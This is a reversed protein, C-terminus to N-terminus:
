LMHPRWQHPHRRSRAFFFGAQQCSGLPGGLSSASGSSFRRLFLQKRCPSFLKTWHLEPHGSGLRSLGFLPLSLYSFPLLFTPPLYSFTPYHILVHPLVLRATIQSPGQRGQRLIYGVLGPVLSVHVAQWLSTCGLRPVQHRWMRQSLSFSFSLSATTSQYYYCCYPDCLCLSLFLLLLLLLLLLLPLLLRLDFSAQFSCM